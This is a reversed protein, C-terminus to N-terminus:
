SEKPVDAVEIATQVASWVSRIDAACGDAQHEVVSKRRIQAQTVSHDYRVRGAVQIGRKQALSEIDDAIGPNLDWKNVCVMAPIGFHRTLDAVREM